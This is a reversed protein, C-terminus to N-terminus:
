GVSSGSRLPVPSSGAVMSGWMLSLCIILGIFWWYATTRSEFGRGDIGVYTVSLYDFWYVVLVCHNFSENRSLPPRPSARVGSM